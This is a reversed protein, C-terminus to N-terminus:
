GLQRVEDNKLPPPEVVLWFGEVKPSGKTVHCHFGYFISKPVRSAKRYVLQYQFDVSFTSLKLKWLFRQPNWLNKYYTPPYDGISKHHETVLNFYQLSHDLPQTSQTAASIPALPIGLHSRQFSKLIVLGNTNGM